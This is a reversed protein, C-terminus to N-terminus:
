WPGLRWPDTLADFGRPPPGPSPRVRRIAVVVVALGLGAVALGWLAAGPGEGDELQDAPNGTAAPVVNDGAALSAPGGLDPAAVGPAALGGNDGVDFGAPGGLDPAAVGPAAVADPEALRHHAYPESVILGARRLAQLRYRVTRPPMALRAAIVDTSLPGGALLDWIDADPEYTPREAM